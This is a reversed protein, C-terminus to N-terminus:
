VKTIKGKNNIIIKNEERLRHNYADVLNVRTMAATSYSRIIEKNLEVRKIFLDIDIGTTFLVYKIALLFRQLAVNNINLHQCKELIKISLDENIFKLERLNRMEYNLAGSSQGTTTLVRAITTLSYFKDFRDFLEIIKLCAENNSNAAMRIMDELTHRKGARNVSTVYEYSASVQKKIYFVECGMIKCATFRHQGDIICYNEDVLIPFSDFNFQKRNEEILKNVNKMDIPRNWKLLNFKDYDRTKLIKM